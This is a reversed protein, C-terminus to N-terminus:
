SLPAGSLGPLRTVNGGLSQWGKRLAWCGTLSWTYLAKFWVATPPNSPPPAVSFPFFCLRYTRHCCLSQPLDQDAGFAENRPGFLDKGIRRISHDIWPGCLWPSAPSGSQLTKSDWSWAVKGHDSSTVEWRQAKTDGGILLIIIGLNTCLCIDPARAWERWLGACSLLGWGQWM